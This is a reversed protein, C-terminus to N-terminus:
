TQGVHPAQNPIHKREWYAVFGVVFMVLTQYAVDFVFVNKHWLTIFLILSAARAARFAAVREPPHHRMQELRGASRFTAALLGFVCFLGLIGTEWLLAAVATNGIDQKLDISVPIGSITSNVTERYPTEVDAVRTYGLGHGLLTSKIDSSGNRELWFRLGGFRSLENGVEDSEINSEYTFRILDDVTEVRSGSPAGLVLAIVVVALLLAMSLSAAVFRMPREILDRGYLVAFVAMLYFVSVKAENVLIPFTLPAALAFLRLSSIVGLQRAAILGAIVVTLFANLVANAGGGELSAGFTGAVIDIAVVGDGLGVRRPVLVLLQHLVFPLQLFAIALALRPLRDIVGVPWPFFALAILLGWVQFYGKFGVFFREPMFHSTISAVVTAALFALAWWIVVPVPQSSRAFRSRTLEWLAYFALVIAIPTLVWRIQQVQPVYLKTLGTVVLGGFLSSWLLWIPHAAIFGAILAAMPLAAVVFVFPSGSSALWGITVAALLAAASFGFGELISRGAPGTFRMM